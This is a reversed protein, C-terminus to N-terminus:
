VTLLTCLIIVHQKNHMSDHTDIHISVLNKLGIFYRISTNDIIYLLIYIICNSDLSVEETSNLITSTPAMNNNGNGVAIEQALM